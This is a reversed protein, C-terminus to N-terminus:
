KYYLNNLNNTYKYLNPVSDLNQASLVVNMQNHNNYHYSFGHVCFLNINTMSCMRDIEEYEFTEISLFKAIDTPDRYKVQPIIEHKEQSNSLNIVPFYGHKSRFNSVYSICHIADIKETFCMYRPVKAPDIITLLNGRPKISIFNYNM